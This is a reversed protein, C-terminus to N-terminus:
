HPYSILQHQSFRGLLEKLNEKLEWDILLGNDDFRPHVVIEVIGKPLEKLTMAVPLSYSVRTKALGHVILRTNYAAKYMKKTISIKHKFYGSLRVASIGMKKAVHLAVSGVAWGTHSHHHSDIHTPRIGKTICASVQATFEDEVAGMDEKSLHFVRRLPKGNFVEDECCFRPCQKIRSTLPQGEILNLHVGIKGNLGYDRALMCAEEFGPMNAMISTSSILNDQFAKLIASNVLSSMGFDDANIVLKPANDQMRLSMNELPFM